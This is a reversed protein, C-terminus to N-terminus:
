IFEHEGNPLTIDALLASHDSGRLPLTRVSTATCDRTLIHDVAFVPPLLRVDAPHTRM